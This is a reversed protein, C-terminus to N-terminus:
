LIKKQYRQLAEMEVTYFRTKKSQILVKMLVLFEQPTYGISM